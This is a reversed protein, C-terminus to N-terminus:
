FPMENDFDIVKEKKKVIFNYHLNSKPERPKPFVYECENDIKLGKFVNKIARIQDKRSQKKSLGLFNIAFYLPIRYDSFYTVQLHMKIQNVSKYSMIDKLEIYGTKSTNLDMVYSKKITFEIENETAVISEFYPHRIENVKRAFEKNSINMNEFLSGEKRRNKLDISFKTKYTKNKNISNIMNAYALMAFVLKLQFVNLDFYLEMQKKNANKFCDQNIRIFMNKNLM